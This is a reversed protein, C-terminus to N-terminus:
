RRLFIKFPTIVVKEYRYFSIIVLFNFVLNGALTALAAGSIGWIPIFIICCLATILVNVVMCVTAMKERGSVIFFIAVPGSFATVLQSISLVSLPIFAHRFNWGYLGLLWKGTLLILIFLVICGAFTLRAANQILRFTETKNELFHQRALFTPAVLNIIIAPYGVIEAIKLAVNYYGVDQVQSILGLSLIDLRTTLFYLITLLFFYGNRGFRLQAFSAPISDPKNKLGKRTLYLLYGLSLILSLASALILQYIIGNGAANYFTLAVILLFFIFPRFVKEALQSKVITGYARLFSGYNSNLAFLLILWLAAAFVAAHEHLGPVPFFRIICYFVSAVILSSILIGAASLKVIKRISGYDESLHMAPVAALHYDDMGAQAFIALIALWNFILSYLGYIEDGFSRAILVNGGFTLIVALFHLIFVKFSEGFVSPIDASKIDKFFFRLFKPVKERM